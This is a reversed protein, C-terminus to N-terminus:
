DADAEDAVVEDVVAFGVDEVGVFGPLLLERVM